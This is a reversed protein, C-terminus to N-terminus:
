ASKRGPVASPATAAQGPEHGWIESSGFEAQGTPPSVGWGVEWSWGSPTQLYFSLASDNHHQGIELRFPIKQKRALDRTLGVDELRSHETMVHSLRKGRKLDGFALSHQRTNCSMFYLALQSDATQRELELSGRMGLIRTYFQEAKAPDSQEIVVHGLGSTGTVFPGHMPRGPHFPSGREIRPGYFIDTPAGGPDNLEIFGLVQREAAEQKSGERYPAEVDRLRHSIEDLEAAGAVRWGIRGLDDSGDERLMVRHHWYDMRLYCSRRDPGETVQLGLVDSAFAKWASLDSVGLALYGLETVGSM